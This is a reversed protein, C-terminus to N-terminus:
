LFNLAIWHLTITQIFKAATFFSAKLVKEEVSPMNSVMGGGEEGM